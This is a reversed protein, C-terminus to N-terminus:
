NQNENIVKLETEVGVLEEKCKASLEAGQKYLELAEKLEINKDSLRRNIEELKNLAEDVNFNENM